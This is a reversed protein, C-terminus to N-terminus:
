LVITLSMIHCFLCNSIKFSSAFCSFEVFLFMGIMAFLDSNVTSSEKSNEEERLEVRRLAFTAAMGFYAGFMHIVMSGGVDTVKIYHVLIMENIAYFVTEIIAVFVLQLRSTKGLLAGFTILVAAANFDALILSFLLSYHDLCSSLVPM